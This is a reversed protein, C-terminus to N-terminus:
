ISGPINGNIHNRSLNLITLAFLLSLKALFDGRFNNGFLDISTVLSLTKTYKQPLCKTNLVLSEAYYVGKLDQAMAKLGVINTLINGTLNNEVLDLVQLSSSNLLETPLVDSFSNTRLNIIRLNTFVNGDWPPITGSLNKNGLDLTELSTLNKLSASLEGSIM